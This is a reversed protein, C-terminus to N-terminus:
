PPHIVIKVVKDTFVVFTYKRKYERIEHPRRDDKLLIEWVVRRWLLDISFLVRSWIV